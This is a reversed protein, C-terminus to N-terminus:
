LDQSGAGSTDLICFSSRFVNYYPDKLTNPQVAYEGELSCLHRARPHATRDPRQHHHDLHPDRGVDGKFGPDEGTTLRTHRLNVCVRLCKAHFRSWVLDPRSVSRSRDISKLEFLRTNKITLSSNVLM